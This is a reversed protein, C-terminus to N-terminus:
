FLVSNVIVKKKCGKNSCTLVDDIDPVKYITNDTICDLCNWTITVDVEVGELDDVEVSELDDVVSKLDDKSKAM